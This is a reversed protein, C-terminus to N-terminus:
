KNNNHTCCIRVSTLLTATAGNKNQPRHQHQQQKSCYSKSPCSSSNCLNNKDVLSEIFNNYFLQCTLCNITTATTKRRTKIKTTLPGRYINTQSFPIETKKRRNNTKVKFFIVFNKLLALLCWLSWTVCSLYSKKKNRNSCFVWSSM